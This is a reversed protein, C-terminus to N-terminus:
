ATRRQSKSHKDHHFACGGSFPPCVVQINSINDDRGGRAGARGRIHDGEGYKGLPKGCAACRGGQRRHKERCRAHYVDEHLEHLNQERRSPPGLPKRFIEGSQASDDVSAYMTPTRAEYDTTLVVEVGLARSIKRALRPLDVM